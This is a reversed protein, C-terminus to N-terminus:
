LGAGPRSAPPAEAPPERFSCRGSEDWQVLREYQRVYRCGVAAPVEAVNRVTRSPVDVEVLMGGLRGGVGGDAPRLAAIRRGDPSHCIFELGELAPAERPGLRLQGCGDTVVLGRVFPRTDMCRATFALAEEDGRWFGSAGLGELETLCDLVFREGTRRHYICVRRSRLDHAYLRPWDGEGWAVDPRNYIIREGSPSVNAAAQARALPMEAFDVLEWGEDRLVFLKSVSGGAPRARPVNYPYFDNSLDSQLMHYRQLEFHPALRVRETRVLMGATPVMGPVPRIVENRPCGACALALGCAAM